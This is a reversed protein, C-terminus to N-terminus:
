DNRFCYVGVNGYKRIISFDILKKYINQSNLLEKRSEGTLNELAHIEKLQNEIFTLNKRNNLENYIFGGLAIQILLICIILSYHVIKRTKFNFIKSFIM